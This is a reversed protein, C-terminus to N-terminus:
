STQFLNWQRINEETPENRLIHTVQKTLRDIVDTLPHGALAVDIAQKVVQDTKNIENRYWSQAFDIQSVFPQLQPDFGGEKIKNVATEGDPASDVVMGESELLEQYFERLFQDDEVILVRKQADM